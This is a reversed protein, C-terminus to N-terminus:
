YVLGWICLCQWVRLMLHCYSEGGVGDAKENLAQLALWGICNM